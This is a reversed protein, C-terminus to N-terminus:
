RRCAQRGEKVLVAEENSVREVPAADNIRKWVAPFHQEALVKMEDFSREGRVVFASNCGFRQDVTRDWMALVTWGAVHHLQALSQKQYKGEPYPWNGKRPPGPAFAGDLKAGDPGFPWDTPLEGFYKSRGFSFPSPVFLFHGPTGICGFYYCPEM